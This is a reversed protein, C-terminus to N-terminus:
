QLLFRAELLSLLWCDEGTPDVSGNGTAGTAAARTSCSDARRSTIALSPRVGHEDTLLLLWM